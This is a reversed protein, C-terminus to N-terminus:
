LSAGLSRMGDMKTGAILNHDIMDNLSHSGASHDVVMCLKESRPKPVVHVLVSYMGPLLDSGFSQSFCLSAEEEQFQHAIFDIHAPSQPPCNPQDVTTPYDEKTTEAWPWFGHRLAYCVSCVFEQNPHTELLQEFMDVKIPTVIKFLFPHSLITSRAVVNNHEQDSPQPVP